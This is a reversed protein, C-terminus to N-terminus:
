FYPSHRGALDRRTTKSWSYFFSVATHKEGSKTRVVTTYIKKKKKKLKEKNLMFFTFSNKSKIKLGLGSM